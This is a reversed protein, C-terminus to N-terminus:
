SYLSKTKSRHHGHGDIPSGHLSVSFIPASLGIKIQKNTIHHTIVADNAPVLPHERREACRKDIGREIVARAIVLVGIM